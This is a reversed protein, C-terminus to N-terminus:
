NANYEKLADYQGDEFDETDHSFLRQVYAGNEKVLCFEVGHPAINTNYNTGYHVHNKKVFADYQSIDEDPYKCRSVLINNDKDYKKAYNNYQVWSQYMPIKEGQVIAYKKIGLIKGKEDYHTDEVGAYHGRVQISQSEVRVTKAFKQEQLSTV